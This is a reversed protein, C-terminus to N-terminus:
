YSIVFANYTQKMRTPIWLYQAVITSPLSDPPINVRDTAADKVNAHNRM